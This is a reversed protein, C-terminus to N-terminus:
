ISSFRKGNSLDEVLNDWGASGGLREQMKSKSREADQEAECYEVSDKDENVDSQYIKNGTFRLSRGGMMAQFVNESGWRERADDKEFAYSIYGAAAKLFAKWDWGSPLTSARDALICYILFDDAISDPTADPDYPGHLNCGGWTYDDDCRMQYCNSFWEYQDKQSLGTAWSSPDDAASPDVRGSGSGGPGGFSLHEKKSGFYRYLTLNEPKANVNSNDSDCRVSWRGEKKVFKVLTGQTGNLHAAGKLGQFRVTHGPKAGEM